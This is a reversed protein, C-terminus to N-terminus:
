HPHTPFNVKFRLQFCCATVRTNELAGRGSHKTYAGLCKCKIQNYQNPRFHGIRLYPRIEFNKPPAAGM